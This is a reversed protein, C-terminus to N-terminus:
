SPVTGGVDSKRYHHNNGITAVPRYEYSGILRGVILERTSGDPTIITDGDVLEHVFRWMVGAPVTVKSLHGTPIEERVLAVIAERKLHTLDHGPLWAVAIVGEREFDSAFQGGKGARCVWTAV